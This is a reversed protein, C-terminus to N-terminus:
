MSFDAAGAVESDISINIFVFIELDIAFSELAGVQWARTL